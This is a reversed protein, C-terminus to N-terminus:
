KIVAFGEYKLFSNSLYTQLSILTNCRNCRVTIKYRQSRPIACNELALYKEVVALADERSKAEFVQNLIDRLHSTTHKM